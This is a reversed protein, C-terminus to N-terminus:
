ATRPLGRRTPRRSRRRRSSSHRAQVGLAIAVTLGLGALFRRTKSDGYIYTAFLLAYLTWAALAWALPLIRAVLWVAIALLAFAFAKKVNDM